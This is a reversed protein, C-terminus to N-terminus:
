GWNKTVVSIEHKVKEWLQMLTFHSSLWFAKPMPFPVCLPSIFPSTLAFSFSSPSCHQVKLLVALGGGWVLCTLSSNNCSTTASCHGRCCLCSGPFLLHWDPPRVNALWLLHWQAASDPMLFKAASTCFVDNDILSHALAGCKQLMPLCWHWVQEIQELCENSAPYDVVHTSRLEIWSKECLQFFEISSGRGGIDWQQCVVDDIVADDRWLGHLLRIIFRWLSQSRSKAFVGFWGFLFSELDVLISNLSWSCFRSTEVSLIPPWFAAAKIVVHSACVSFDQKRASCRQLNVTQDALHLFSIKNSNTFNNICQHAKQKRGFPFRGFLNRKQTDLCMNWKAQLKSFAFALLFTRLQLVSLLTLARPSAHFAVLLLNPILIKFASRLPLVM